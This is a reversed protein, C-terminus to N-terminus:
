YEIMVILLSHYLPAIRNSVEGFELGLGDIHLVLEDLPSVEEAIVSRIGALFKGLPLELASLDKFFYESPDDDPSNAFLRYDTEGYHVIMVHRGATLALAEVVDQTSSEDENEADAGPFENSERSETLAPSSHREPSDQEKVVRLDEAEPTSLAKTRELPDGETTNIHHEGDNSEDVETDTAGPSPGNGEGAISKDDDVHDYGIEDGQDEGVEDTSSTHENPSSHQHETTVQEADMAGSTGEDNTNQLNRPSSKHDESAAIKRPLPEVEAEAEVVGDTANQAGDISDIIDEHDPPTSVDAHSGASAPAEKAGSDEIPRVDEVSITSEEIISKSTSAQTELLSESEVQAGVVPALAFDVVESEIGSYGEVQNTPPYTEHATATEDGPWEYNDTNDIAVDYDNGADANENYSIDEADIMGYSAHDDEAMFEDRNDSNFNQFDEAQNYDGLELDEDHQGAAFELDIDIDEGPFQGFDMSIEMDEGSM